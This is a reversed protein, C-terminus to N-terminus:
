LKRWVMTPKLRTSVPSDDIYGSAGVVLLPFCEPATILQGFAGNM